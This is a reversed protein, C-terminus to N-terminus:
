RWAESEIFVAWDAPTCWRDLAPSDLGVRDYAYDALSSCVVHGPVGPGWRDFLRWLPAVHAAATLAIAADVGIATWDYEAKLVLPAMAAVIKVRQEDTKPQAVNSLTVPDALYPRLDVPGVVGPQGQMGWWTGAADVHDAVIVHTWTTPERELSAGLRILWSALRTFPRGSKVRVLLVDGPKVSIM